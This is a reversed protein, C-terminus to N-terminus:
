TDLCTKRWLKARRRRSLFARLRSLFLSTQYELGMLANRLNGLRHSSGGVVPFQPRALDLYSPDSRM